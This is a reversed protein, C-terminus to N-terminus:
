INSIDYIHTTQSWHITQGDFTFSSIQKTTNIIIMISIIHIILSVMLFRLSLLPSLSINVMLLTSHCILADIIQSQRSSLIPGAMKHLNSRRFHANGHFSHSLGQPYTTQLFFCGMDLIGRMLHRSILLVLMFRHTQKPKLEHWFTAAVLPKVCWSFGPALAMLIQSHVM